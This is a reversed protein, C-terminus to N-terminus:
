EKFKGHVMLNYANQNSVVFHYKWIGLSIFKYDGNLTIFSFNSDIFNLGIFKFKQIFFRM